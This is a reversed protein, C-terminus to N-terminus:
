NANNAQFSPLAMWNMLSRIATVTAWFGLKQLEELNEDMGLYTIQDREFAAIEQAGSHYTQVIGDYGLSKHTSQLEPGFFGDSEKSDDVM